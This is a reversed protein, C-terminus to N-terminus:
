LSLDTLEFKYNLEKPIFPIFINIKAGGLKSDEIIINGKHAEIIKYSNYLGLGVGDPRTTFFPDFVKEKIENSIGKGSDEITILVEGDILTHYNYTLAFKHKLMSTSIKIVGYGKGKLSQIANFLINLIVQRFREKDVNIPKINKDFNTIIRIYNKQCISECVRVENELLENINVQVFKVGQEPRAISLLKNIIENIREIEELAKELISYSDNNTDLENILLDIAASIGMLPNRIEHALGAALEGISALNSMTKLQESIIKKETIDRFIFLIGNINGHIDKLPSNTIELCLKKGDEMTFDVEQTSLIDTQENFINYLFAVINNRQAIEQINFFLLEEANLMLLRETSKNVNVITGLKDVTLVCNPSSNIINKVLNKEDMLQKSFNSNEIIISAQNAFIAFCEKEVKTLAPTYLPRDVGMCGIIKGKVVLPAYMIRGRNLNKTVVKDIKTARPDNQTDEMCIVKGERIVRTELCDHRDLYFPKRYAKQEQEQNLGLILKCELLNKNENNILFLSSAAFGLDNKVSILISRLIEDLEVIQTLLNSIKLISSILRKKTEIDKKLSESM